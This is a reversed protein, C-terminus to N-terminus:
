WSSFPARLWNNTSYCYYLYSNDIAFSGTVGASTATAPAAVETQMKADLAAQLATITDIAQMGTHNARALLYADTQNATAASAIGDLKTKDAAGMFGAALETAAAHTHSLAAKGDLADQLGDVDAITITSPTGGTIIDSKHYFSDILDAFNEQTPFHRTEFYTKLTTRARISM